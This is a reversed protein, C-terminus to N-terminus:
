GPFRKELAAEEAATGAALAGPNAEMWAYFSRQQPNMALRAAIITERFKPPFTAYKKDLQAQFTQEDTTM